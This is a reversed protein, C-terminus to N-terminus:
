QQISDSEQSEVPPQVDEPSLFAHLLGNIFKGSNDTSYKKGLEIAENLTVLGPIDKFNLLEIIGMRIIVKDMVAVRGFDWNQLKAGILRDLEESKHAYLELSRTFYERNIQYAGNDIEKEPSDSVAEIEVLDLEKVIGTGYASFGDLWYNSELDAYKLCINQNPHSFMFSIEDDEALKKHRVDDYITSLQDKLSDLHNSERSEELMSFFSELNEKVQELTVANMEYAYLVCLLAERTKRRNKFYIGSKNEESM